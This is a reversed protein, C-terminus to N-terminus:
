WEKYASRVYGRKTRPTTLNNLPRVKWTIICAVWLTNPGCLPAPLHWQIAFVPDGVVLVVDHLHHFKVSRGSTVNFGSLTAFEQKHAEWTRTLLLNTELLTPVFLRATFGVYLLDYAVCHDKDPVSGDLSELFALLWIWFTSWAWWNSWNYIKPLFIKTVWSIQLALDRTGSFCSGNQEQKTIINM